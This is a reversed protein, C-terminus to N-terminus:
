DEETWQKTLMAHKYMEICFLAERLDGSTSAAVLPQGEEESGWGIVLVYTMGLEKMGDLVSNADVKIRPQTPFQVVKLDPTDDAM